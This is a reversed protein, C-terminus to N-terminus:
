STQTSYLTQTAGRITERNLGAYSLTLINAPDPSLISCPTPGLQTPLLPRM